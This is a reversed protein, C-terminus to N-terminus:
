QEQLIEIAEFPCTKACIGCGKCHEYDIATMKGDKLLISTDPCVPVCLLCQKCNESKYLPRKVRWDGTNLERSNGAEEITGGMEIERWTMKEDIKKRM